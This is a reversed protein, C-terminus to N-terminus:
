TTLKTTDLASEWVSLSGDAVLTGTALVESLLDLLTTFESNLAGANNKNMHILLRDNENLFPQAANIVDAVPRESSSVDPLIILDYMVGTQISRPLRRSSSM